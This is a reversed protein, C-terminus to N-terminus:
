WRAMYEWVFKYRDLKDLTRLVREDPQEELRGKLVPVSPKAKALSSHNRKVRSRAESKSTSKKERSRAISTEFLDITIKSDYRYPMFYDKKATKSSVEEKM